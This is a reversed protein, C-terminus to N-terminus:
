ASAAAEKKRLADEKDEIIKKVSPREMMKRHWKWFHPFDMEM